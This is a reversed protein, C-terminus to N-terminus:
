GILPFLKPFRYVSKIQPVAGTRCLRHANVQAKVTPNWTVEPIHMQKTPVTKVSISHVKKWQTIPVSWFSLSPKLNIARYHSLGGRTFDPTPAPGPPFYRGLIGPKNAHFAQYPFGLKFVWWGWRNFKKQALSWMKPTVTSFLHIFFCLSFLSLSFFFSLRFM